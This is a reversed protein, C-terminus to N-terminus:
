LKEINIHMDHGTTALINPSKSLLDDLFDTMILAAKKLKDTKNGLREHSEKLQIALEANEHKATAM